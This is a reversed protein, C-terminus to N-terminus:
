RWFMYWKKSKAFQLEVLRDIMMDFEDEDSANPLHETAIPEFRDPIEDTPQCDGNAPDHGEVKQIEEGEVGTAAEVDEFLDRKFQSDPLAEAAQQSAPAVRLQRELGALEDRQTNIEKKLIKIHELERQYQMQWQAAREMSTADKRRLAAEDRQLQETQQDLERQRAAQRTQVAILQQKEVAGRKLLEELEEVRNTAVELQDLLSQREAAWQDALQRHREAEITVQRHLEEVARDHASSDAGDCCRTSGSPSQAASSAEPPSPTTTGAQVRGVEDHWSEVTAFHEDLERFEQVPKSRQAVHASQWVQSREETGLYM